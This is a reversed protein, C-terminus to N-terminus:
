KRRRREVEAVVAAIQETLRRTIHGRRVRENGKRPEKTLLRDREEVLGHGWLKLCALGVLLPEHGLGLRRATRAAADSSAIAYAQWVLDPDVGYRGALEASRRRNREVQPRLEKRLLERDSVVFERGRLLKLWRTRDLKVGEVEVVEDEPTTRLLQDRLRPEGLLGQLFLEEGLSLARRGTEIAAVTSQVWTALGVARARAAVDEQRLGREERLRKLSRGVIQNLTLEGM